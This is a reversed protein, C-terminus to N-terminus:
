QGNPDRVAHSPVRNPSHGETVDHGPPATNGERWLRRAQDVAREDYWRRTSDPDPWRRPHVGLARQGGRLNDVNQWDQAYVADLSLFRKQMQTNGISHDRATRASGCMLELRARTSSEERYQVHHTVIGGVPEWLPERPQGSLPNVTGTHFGGGAMIFREQRDFRQLPHKWHPQDCFRTRASVFQECMPQFDIPHFGPVYEPKDTPFHNYYTSGVIRFRRDLTHLYEAITLGGPGEPFEDADLWLWWIHPAGCAFSERAVAANMLLIRVPEEYADTEFSEALTAGASLARAVTADTSGNDVVFVAEVGQAFANRVTAEVIDEEMWTGLIAFFRFDDLPLADSPNAEPLIRKTVIPRLV